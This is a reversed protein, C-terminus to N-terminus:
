KKEIRLADFGKNSLDKARDLGKNTLAQTDELLETGKETVQASGKLSLHGTIHAVGLTIAAFVALIGILRFM